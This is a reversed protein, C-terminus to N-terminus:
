FLLRTRSPFLLMVIFIITHDYLLSQTVSWYYVKFPKTAVLRPDSISIHEAFNSLYTPGPEIRAPKKWFLVHPATIELM